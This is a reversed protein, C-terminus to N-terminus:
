NAVEEVPVAVAAGGSLNQPRPKRPVPAGALGDDDDDTVRLPRQAGESPIRRRRPRRGPRRFMESFWGVLRNYCTAM